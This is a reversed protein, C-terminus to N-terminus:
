DTATPVSESMGYSSGTGTDENSQKVLHLLSIGLSAKSSQADAAAHSASGDYLSVSRDSM